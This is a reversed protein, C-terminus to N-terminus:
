NLHLETVYAEIASINDFVTTLENINDTTISSYTKRLIKTTKSTTIMTSITQTFNIKSFVIDTYVKFNFTGNVLSTGPLTDLFLSSYKTNKTTKNISDM